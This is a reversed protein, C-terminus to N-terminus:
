TSMVIDSRSREDSHWRRYLSHEVGLLDLIKGVIYDVLEDVTKHRTYFAPVPPVIIIGRRASRHLLKIHTTDLPTERPVVIVKRKEKLAVEVVRTILNAPRGHAIDSLTKISCPAVVVAKFLTSGSSIPADLDDESYLHAVYKLAEDVLSRPVELRTVRWGWRSVILTIPDRVRRGLEIVLKYGIIVGSAGTICVIFM